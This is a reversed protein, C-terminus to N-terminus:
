FEDRMGAAQLLAAQLDSVFACWSPIRTIHGEHNMRELLLRRNQPFRVNFKQLKRGTLGSALALKEKLMSKPDPVSEVRNVPPLDLKATGNPNGSVVRIETEDVLLWAETMRVPIIAAHPTGPANSNVADVIETLRADRGDGDADRHILILDYTGDIALVARLKDAVTRGPPKPLRALDPNTVAVEVQTEVAVREIQPILGSDSSGEALFLVRLTM